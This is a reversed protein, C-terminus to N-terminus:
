ILRTYEFYKYLALQCQKLNQVQSVVDIGQITKADSAFGFLLMRRLAQVSLALSSLTVDPHFHQAEFSCFTKVAPQPHSIGTEAAWQFESSAIAYQQHVCFMVCSHVYSKVYLFRVAHEHPLIM